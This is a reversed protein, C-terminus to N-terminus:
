IIEEIEAGRVECWVFEPWTAAALRLKSRADRYNKQRRSAKIEVFVLRGDELVVLWDPTYRNGPLNFTMPEYAMKLVRAGFHNYLLAAGVQAFEAEAQSKYNDILPLAKALM